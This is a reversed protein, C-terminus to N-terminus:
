VWFVCIRMYKQILSTSLEGIFSKSAENYVGGTCIFELNGGSVHDIAAANNTIVRIHKNKISKIVELTTTGANIFVTDREQVMSAVTKAILMKENGHLDEKKHSEPSIDIHSLNLKAGGHFRTIYGKKELYDFDRRITIESVGLIGSIESVQLADSSQFLELIKNQRKKVEAKSQKM